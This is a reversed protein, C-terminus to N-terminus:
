DWFILANLLNKFFGTWSSSSKGVVHITANDVSTLTDNGNTDAVNSDNRDNPTFSIQIDAEGNELPEFILQAFQGAGEYANGPNVLGSFSVKGNQNDIVPTTYADFITGPHVSSLKLKEHDFSAIFDAGTTETGTTDLFVDVAVESGDSSTEPSLSFSVGLAPRAVMLFVIATM